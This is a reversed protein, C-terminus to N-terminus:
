SSIKNIEKLREILENNEKYRAFFLEPDITHMYEGNPWKEYFNRYKCDHAEFHLHPGTSDGTSGMLGLVTDENATQGEKVFVKEFHNYRTCHSNHELIINNGRWKDFGVFVVKSNDAICYIEDGPVGQVVGGYDIGGHFDLNSGRMRFGYKSTIRNNSTPYRM